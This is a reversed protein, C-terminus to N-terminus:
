KVAYGAPASPTSPSTLGSRALRPNPRDLQWSNWVMLNFYSDSDIMASMSAYVDEFEERAVRGSGNAFGEFCGLFERLAQSPPM